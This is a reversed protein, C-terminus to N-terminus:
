PCCGEEDEADEAESSGGGARGDRPDDGGEEEDGDADGVHGDITGCDVVHNGGVTFLIGSGGATAVTECPIHEGTDRGHVSMWHIGLNAIRTRISKTISGKYQTTNPSEEDNRDIDNIKITFPNSRM